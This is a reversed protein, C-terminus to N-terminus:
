DERVLKLSLGLGAALRAMMRVSPNRTGREIRSIDAQTIGTIESLDKQTIKQDKRADILAQIMAFELELADYERKLEPDKLLNKKYDEFRTM